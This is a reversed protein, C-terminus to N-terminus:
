ARELAALVREHKRKFAEQKEALAKKLGEIEALEDRMKKEYEALLDEDGTDKTM